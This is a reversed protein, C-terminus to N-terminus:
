PRDPWYYVPINKDIAHAIEGLTGTSYEWEPLVIVADCRELIELDGALWREDSCAKVALSYPLNSNAHPCIVTYGQHWLQLTVYCAKQINGELTQDRKPRLPGALYVIM